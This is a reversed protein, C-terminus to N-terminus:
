PTPQVFRGLLELIKTQSSKIDKLDDKIFKINNESVAQKQKVSYLEARIRSYKERNRETAKKNTTIALSNREVSEASALKINIGVATLISFVSIVAIIYLKTDVKQFIETM